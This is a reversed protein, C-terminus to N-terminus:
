LYHKEAQKFVHIFQDAVREIQAKTILLSPTFSSRHWKANVNIGAEMMGQKIYRSFGDLDQTKHEVSFRLGRGRINDFAASERLSAEILGRFYVGKEYVGDLFEQEGIISQVQIAAAVGLSYAQMTTSHALRGDYSNHILTEYKSHTLVASLPAYGAALSKSIMLFDPVVDDYEFCHYKGSTGTGCYVEDLILHINYKDCLARVGSWYGPEPPVDGVLGGMMTEGLFAMITDPDNAEITQEIEDLCRKVYEASSEDQRGQRYINHESVFLKNDLFFPKHIQLNPRDTLSMTDTSSGHYSQLRGIVKTKGAFGKAKHVLYSMKMATECAESGANGCFYAKDLGSAGEKTLLAALKEVNPDKWAKYDLHSFKKLQGHIAENIQPHNWGLVMHSTDGGSMDLLVRGDLTHIHLGDCHSIATEPGGEFVHFVHSM